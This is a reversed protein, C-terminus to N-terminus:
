LAPELKQKLEENDFGLFFIEPKLHLGCNNKAETIIKEIVSLYNAATAQGLNEIFAAHRTSVQADGVRYGQLKLVHQILYGISPTPLNLREQEQKSLNQFVCGLSNQPQVAKRRAWEVAVKQAEAVNGKFLLFTAAIIVDNSHHFRSFDYELELESVAYKKLEGTQTIVEVEVLHEGIFHTGGHINNYIAGGITAPIRAYWQLGTVGQQLLKNITAPLSAGSAITVAVRPANEKFDLDAFEAVPSDPADVAKWRATFHQKQYNQLFQQTKDENWVTIEQSLYRIVLGKIGYDSILTNAGWGLMTIPISNQQAFQVVKLLDDKTDLDCFVEAPGGIKVTTYKALHENPKFTLNPFAAKVQEFLMKM